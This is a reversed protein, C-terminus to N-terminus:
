RVHDNNAISKLPQNTLVVIYQSQFYQRLKQYAMLFAYALKEIKKYNLKSSHLAKSIYYMSFQRKPTERILIAAM